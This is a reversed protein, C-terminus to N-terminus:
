HAAARARGAAAEMAQFMEKARDADLGAELVPVYIEEEKAFHLLVVAHLAYLVRRLERRDQPSLAGAALRGRLTSLENILAAVEEHDRRMTATAGPAGQVREVEPYLVEDEAMAHPILHGTLFAHAADVAAEFGPAADAVADAAARLAEIEPLLERHEDRLPQMVSMPMSRAPRLWADDTGGPGRRWGGRARFERDFPAAVVEM